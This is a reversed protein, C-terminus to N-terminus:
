FLLGFDLLKLLFESEPLSKNLKLDFKIFIKNIEQNMSLIHTRAQNLHSSTFFTRNFNLVNWNKM